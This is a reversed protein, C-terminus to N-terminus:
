TKLNVGTLGVGFKIYNLMKVPWARLVASPFIPTVVVGDIVSDLRGPNDCLLVLNGDTNDPMWIEPFVVLEAVDRLWVYNALFYDYRLAWDPRAQSSPVAANRLREADVTKSDFLVVSNIWGYGEDLLDLCTGLDYIGDSRSERGPVWFNRFPDYLLWSSHLRQLCASLPMKFYELAYCHEMSEGQTTTSTVRRGTNM